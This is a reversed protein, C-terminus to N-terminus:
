KLDHEKKSKNYLDLATQLTTAHGFYIRKWYWKKGRFVTSWYTYEEIEILESGKHYSVRYDRLDKFETTAKTIKM